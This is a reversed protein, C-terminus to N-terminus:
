RENERRNRLQQHSCNTELPSSYVNDSYKSRVHIIEWSLTERHKEELDTANAIEIDNSEGTSLLRRKILSRTLSSREVGLCNGRM